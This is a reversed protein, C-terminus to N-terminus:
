VNYLGHINSFIKCKKVHGGAFSWAGRGPERRGPNGGPSKPRKRVSADDVSTAWPQPGSIWLWPWTAKAMKASQLFRFVAINVPFFPYFFPELARLNQFFRRM